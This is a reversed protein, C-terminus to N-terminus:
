RLRDPTRRTAGSDAPRQESERDFGDAIGVLIFPVIVALISTQRGAMAGFDDPSLGTTTGLVTMPNGMGGFAVPATNGILAMTAAKIPDFGLAILMVSCIAIPSGGGALAEILAGFSFAIIVAQIRRDDSLAFFTRRLVAFHGTHVTLNYIWIANFTIWLILLLSLTAGYGAANFAQGTPMDFAAIAIILGIALATLGAWHAKWKFVGLLVLIAALPLLALLASTALSGTPDVNQTFM